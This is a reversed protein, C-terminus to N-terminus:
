EAERKANSLFGDLAPLVTFTALAAVLMATMVLLGFRSLPVTDAMILVAFGSAVEVANFVVAPGVTRCTEELSLGRWRRRWLFHISYDIGIGLSLAAVMCTGPDLPTGTWGMLGFTILLTMASPVLAILGWRPSWFMLTGLILLLGLSITMSRTQNRVTSARFARNIVATGTVGVELQEGAEGESSEVPLGVRADDLEELARRVAVSTEEGADARNTGAARLVDPLLRKALVVARAESIRDALIPIAMEVGETDGRVSEPLAPPLVRALRSRSLPSLALPALRAAVPGADFPELPNDDSEFFRRISADLAEHLDEGPSITWQAFRQRLVELVPGKVGARPPHESARLLRDIRLAVRDLRWARAAEVRPGDEHINVAVLRRPIEEDIFRTLQEIVRDTVRTDRTGLTIQIIARSLDDDVMTQLAPNGAMFNQLGVVQQPRRPLRQVGGLGASLLELTDLFSTVRTAGDITRAEEVVARIEDLVVPDRLNGRFYVQVFLSGGFRERLFRASRAPESDPRFFSNLSTDPAVRRALVAAGLSVVLLLAVTLVPHRRVAAGWRRIPEGLREAPAPGPKGRGFSLVAPIAVLAVVGCLIVGISAEIGFHQMPTIDMAVFSVFGAVTTLMSALVPPGVDILALRVREAATEGRAVSFAALVHAGYAGGIAVLVIPLTTSVVTLPEGIRAMGGLTWVAGLAVASLVLLSGLPRRLFLFTALATLLLVWPTLHVIDRRTGGGIHDQIFPLGGYSLRLGGAHPELAQRLAEAAGVMPAGVRFFCLVLAAEGDRSVLRGAVTRDSLVDRRIAELSAADTPIEDPVLPHIEFMEATAEYHSMETFSLSHYVGEVSRVAKTMARIKAIGDTTLLQPSEVGVVALDLGGFESSVRRFLRIDPDDAPLFRLIDEDQRLSRLSTGLWMTLAVIILIFPIRFRVVIDAFVRM